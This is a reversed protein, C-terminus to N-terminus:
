PHEDFRAFSNCSSRSQMGNKNIHHQQCIYSICIVIFALRIKCLPQPKV